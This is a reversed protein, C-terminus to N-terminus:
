ADLLFSLPLGSSYLATVANEMLRRMESEAPNAQHTYPAITWRGIMNTRNYEAIKGELYMKDADTVLYKVSVSMVGSSDQLAHDTIFKKWTHSIESKEKMRYVVRFQTYEDKYLVYYTNGYRDPVPLPGGIDSRIHSCRHVNVGRGRRSNAPVHRSTMKGAWWADPRLSPDRSAFKVQSIGSIMGKSLTRNFRGENPHNLIQLVNTTNLPNLHTHNFLALTQDSERLLLHETSNHALQLQNTGSQHTTADVPKTIILPLQTHEDTQIPIISGNKLTVREDLFDVKHGTKNPWKTYHFKNVCLLNVPSKPNYLSNSVSWVIDRGSSTPTAFVAVGTGVRVSKSGHVGSIKVTHYRLGYPFFAVSRFMHARNSGTDLISRSVHTHALSPTSHIYSYAVRLPRHAHALVKDVEPM